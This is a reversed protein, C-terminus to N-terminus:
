LLRLKLMADSASDGSEDTGDSSSITSSTSLVSARDDRGLMSVCCSGSVVDEECGGVLFRLVPGLPNWLQFALSPGADVAGSGSVSM